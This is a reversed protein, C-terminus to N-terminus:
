VSSALIEGKKPAEDPSTAPPVDKWGESAQQRTWPLESELRELQALLEEASQPRKIPDKELCQAILNDLAQPIEFPSRSSARPPIDSLQARIMEMPTDADFMFQATLLFHGIAGLAYIDTRADVFHRGSVSEPALFAPTGPIAGANTISEYSEDEDHSLSKVLGFDLVKVYDTEGGYRCVMLNAPKLDRHVLGKEHAECLSNTAQRMIHIVRAPVLPGENEVLNGLDIGDLFEMAYFLTKEETVGADFVKITHPNTLSSLVRAERKFRARGEKTLRTPKVRKHAVIRGLEVHRARYVEGMSGESIKDLMEYSGSGWQASAGKRNKLGAAPSVLALVAALTNVGALLPILDPALKVSILVSGSCLLAFAGLGSINLKLSM